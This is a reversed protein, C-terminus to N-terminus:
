ELFGPDGGFQTPALGVGVRTATFGRDLFSVNCNVQRRPRKARGGQNKTRPKQNKAGPEQSKGRGVKEEKGDFLKAQIRVYFTYEQLSMEM